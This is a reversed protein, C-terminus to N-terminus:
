GLSTHKSSGVLDGEYLSVTDNLPPGVVSVQNDNLLTANIVALGILMHVNLKVRVLNLSFLEFWHNTDM